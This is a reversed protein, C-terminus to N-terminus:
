AKIREIFTMCAAPDALPAEEVVPLHPFRESFMRTFIGAPMRGCSPSDKKCVYASLGLGSLEELRSSAWRELRETHDVGTGNTVLHPREADGVIRM